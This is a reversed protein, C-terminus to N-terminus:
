LWLFPNSAAHFSLPCVSIKSIVYLLHICFFLFVPQFNNKLKYSLSINLDIAM